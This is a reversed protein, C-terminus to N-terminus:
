RTAVPLTELFDRLAGLTTISTPRTDGGDAPLSRGSATVAKLFLQTQTISDVGLDAELDADETLMDVPYGLADAYIVRLEGIVEERNRAPEPEDAVTTTTRQDHLRIQRHAVPDLLDALEPGSVRRRLPAIVTADPLVGAVLDCLVGRPGCELFIEAGDARLARVADLFRTPRTLHAAVLAAVDTSDCVDRGLIASHVRRVPVRPTLERAHEVFREAVGALRPNHFPYPVALRTAPIGLADAVRVLQDLDEDPGSVVSQRPGNDAALALDWRGVAGIVHRARAASTELAVMSGPEPPCDAFAADRAIVLQLGQRLDFVGAATLATLEGFSHGLLVDPQIGHRETLLRYLALEAVFIAV